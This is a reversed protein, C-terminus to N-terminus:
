VDEWVIYQYTGGSGDSIISLTSKVNLDISQGATLLIATTNAVATALPNIWINGSVNIFTVMENKFALADASNDIATV